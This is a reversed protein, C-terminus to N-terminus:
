TNFKPTLEWIAWDWMLRQQKMSPKDKMISEHDRMRTEFRHCVEEQFEDEDM